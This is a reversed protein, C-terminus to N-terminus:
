LRLTIKIQIIQIVDVTCVYLRDKEPRKFMRLGGKSQIPDLYVTNKIKREHSLHILM